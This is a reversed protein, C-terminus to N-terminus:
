VVDSMESSLTEWEGVKKSFDARVKTLGGCQKAFERDKTAREYDSAAEAVAQLADAYEKEITVDAVTM